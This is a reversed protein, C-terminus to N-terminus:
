VQLQSSHPLPSPEGKTSDDPVLVEYTQHLRCTVDIHSIVPFLMLYFDVNSQVEKFREAQRGAMFVQYATSRGQCSVILENADRLTDELGALVRRALQECEKKNQRATLAAQMFMSILGGIDAGVLQAVTAAQGLGTWLAM